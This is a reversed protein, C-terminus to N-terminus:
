EYDEDYSNYETPTITIGLPSLVLYSAFIVLFLTLIFGVVLTQALNLLIARKTFFTFVIAAFIVIGAIITLIGM